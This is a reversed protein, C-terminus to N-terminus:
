HAELWNAGIGSEVEVPIDLPLSETMVKTIHAAAKKAEKRNVEFVLEDHVQLLMRASPAVAALSAHLRIMALKIMDAASGQIPMNIAQREANARVNFNKSALDPIYRRRGRMTEVYGTQRAKELTGDIYTRVGPFREFYRAIIEKAEGQPIDLRTALGFPGIGYMIGFNVEKAKRRMEKTVKGIAVGFVKAATSAHIDEGNRFAERLGPDGSVHAM